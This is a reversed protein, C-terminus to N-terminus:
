LYETDGTDSTCVIVQVVTSVIVQVATIVIVQVATIVIVQVVLVVQLARQNTATVEIISVNLRRSLSPRGTEPTPDLEM